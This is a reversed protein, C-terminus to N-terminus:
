SHRRVLEAIREVVEEPTLDDTSIHVADAAPQLPSVERTSDRADRSVVDQQAAKLDVHRGSEEWQHQRRQARIATSATLFIKVPADPFVVTQIDRGELVAGGCEAESNRGLERQRAVVAGRLPGIAAVRSAFDGIEPARIAGTLEREGSWLRTGGDSFRLPLQHALQVIEDENEPLTLGNELAALAIARYMAGTDIYSFGLKRAVARATTSKGAGAPGDIAVIM